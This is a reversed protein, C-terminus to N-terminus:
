EASYFGPKLKLLIDNAGGKRILKMINSYPTEAEM